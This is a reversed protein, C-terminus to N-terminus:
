APDGIARRYVRFRADVRAGSIGAVLALSRDNDVDGLPFTVREIRRDDVLTRALAMGLTLGAGAGQHAPDICIVLFTVARTLRRERLVWWWGLPALRGGSRRLAAGIEPWAAAFGVLRGDHLLLRFLDPRTVLPRIREVLTGTDAEALPLWNPLGEMSRNALRVIEEARQELDAIGAPPPVTYGAEAAAEEWRATGQPMRFADRTTSLSVLDAVAQMGAEEWLRRYYPRHHPTGAPAPVGFGDVQLGNSMGFLLRGRPGAIATRGRGAAWRGAADLLAAAAEPDDDAEFGSLLGASPEDPDASVALRGAPRSGRLALFRATDVGAPGSGSAARTEDRRLPPTWSPDGRYLRHPLGVWRRVARRDAPDFSEVHLGAM